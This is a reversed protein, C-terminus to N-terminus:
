MARLRRDELKQKAVRAVREADKLEGELKKEREELKKIRSLQVKDANAFFDSNKFLWESLILSAISRISVM